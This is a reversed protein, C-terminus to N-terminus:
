FNGSIQREACVRALSDIQIIDSVSKIEGTFAEYDALVRSVNRAIGTFSIKEELFAKVAVENAANMAIPIAPNRSSAADLAIALCPFKKLNPKLFKLSRIDALDLPKVLSPCREPYTLAYQIPLRMDPVALQAIVSNDRFRVASHVISQPHVLIEIDKPSVSFLWSAEIVEFGKNMMTASDITVKAGMSWNPNRLAMTPTVRALEKKKLKRFPGGSATLIIKYPPIEPTGIDEAHNESTNSKDADSGERTDSLEARCSDTGDRYLPKFSNVCQFIASHESDVPILECNYQKVADMFLGGACVLVEKNSLAIRRNGVKVAEMAPELGAIGVISCGVIDSPVMAADSVRDSVEINTDSLRERLDKAADKDAMAVLKPNFRRAQSEMLEVNRNASLATVALGLKEAVELTQTGISGTSGLVSLTRRAASNGGRSSVDSITNVEM